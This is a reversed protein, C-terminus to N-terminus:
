RCYKSQSIKKYINFNSKVEYKYLHFSGGFLNGAAAVTLTPSLLERSIHFGRTSIICIKLFYGSLLLIAGVKNISVCNFSFQNFISLQHNCQMNKVANHKEVASGCLISLTCLVFFVVDAGNQKTINKVFFHWNAPSVQTDPIM